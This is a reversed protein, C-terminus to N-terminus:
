NGYGQGATSESIAFWTALSEGHGTAAYGAQAAKECQAVTGEYGSNQCLSQWRDLDHRYNAYVAIVIIVIVAVVVAV